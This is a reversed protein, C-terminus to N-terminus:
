QIMFEPADSDFLVIIFDNILSLLFIIVLLISCADVFM